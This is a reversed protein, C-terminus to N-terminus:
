TEPADPPPPPTWGAIVQVAYRAAQNDPIPFHRRLEVVAAWEGGEHYAAQISCAADRSIVFMAAM